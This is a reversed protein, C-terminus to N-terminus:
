LPRLDKKPRGRPRITWDLGLASATRKTWTPSGFPSSRRISTQVAELERADVPENVMDLWDAPREVPWENLLAKQEDSGNHEIWLSGWRWREARRVIRARLPNRHVYRLVTLLHEDREIPFSKFRGQYLHGTGSTGHAAHWRQVHTLTLWRFFESLEGDERPWVVFHWHNNMLCWGLLRMGPVRAAAEALVREFAIFDGDKRFIRLRGNARNLVHYIYGGPAVRARRPMFCIM